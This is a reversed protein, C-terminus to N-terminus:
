RGLWPDVDEGVVSTDPARLGADLERLGRFPGGGNREVTFMGKRTGVHLRDSM